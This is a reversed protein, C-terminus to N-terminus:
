LAEEIKTEIEEVSALWGPRSRASARLDAELQALNLGDYGGAEVVQQSLVAWAEDCYVSLWQWSIAQVKGWTVCYVYTADYGVLLICHGGIIPDARYGPILTWPQNGFDFQTEASKPLQVGITASGFQAIALKIETEDHQQIPAHGWVKDGWFGARHWKTLAASIVLGTDRPSMRHYLTAVQAATPAADSRHTEADSAMILHGAASLVCCGLTDNSLIGWDYVVPVPVSVPPVPPATTRYEALSKLASPVQPRLKGYCHSM